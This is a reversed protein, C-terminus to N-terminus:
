FVIGVLDEIFSSVKKEKPRYRTPHGCSNRLDLAQGLIKKETTDIIGLDFLADVLLVDKVYAFDDLKSVRRAKPDHRQLAANV